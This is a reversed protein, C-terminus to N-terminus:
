YNYEASTVPSVPWQPSLAGKTEAYTFPQVKAEEQIIVNFRM